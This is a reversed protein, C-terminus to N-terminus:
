APRRKPVPELATVDARGNSRASGLGLVADRVAEVVRTVDADDLRPSLPLSLTTSGVRHAVPYDEGRWGFRERYVKLTPISRYHVGTGIGRDHLRVLVEDRTRGCTKRDVQVTFLHLGHREDARLPAPLRIPLDALEESYRQWIALRRQWYREVREMQH